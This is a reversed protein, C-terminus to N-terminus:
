FGGGVCYGNQNVTKNDTTMELRKNGVVKEFGVQSTLNFSPSILYNFNIEEYTQRLFAESTFVPIPWLKDSVSNFSTYSGIVLMKGFLKTKHKVTFDWVYFNKKYSSDTDTIRFTEYARIYQNMIRGYPGQRTQFFGFQSRQYKNVQHQM